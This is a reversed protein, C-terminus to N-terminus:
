GFRELRGGTSWVTAANISCITALVWSTLGDFVRDPRGASRPRDVAHHALVEFPM